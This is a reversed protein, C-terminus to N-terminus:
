FAEKKRMCMMPMVNSLVKRGFVAFLCLMLLLYFPYSIPSKLEIVGQLHLKM